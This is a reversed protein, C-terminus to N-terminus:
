LPNFDVMRRREESIHRMQQMWGDSDHIDSGVVESLEIEKFIQRRFISKLKEIDALVHKRIDSRNKLSAAFEFFQM